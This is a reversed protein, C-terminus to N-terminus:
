PYNGRPKQVGSSILGVKFHAFIPSEKWIVAKQGQWTPLVGLKIQKKKGRESKERKIGKRKPPSSQTITHRERNGIIGGKGHRCPTGGGGGKDTSNM